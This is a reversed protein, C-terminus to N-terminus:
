KKNRSKIFSILFIIVGISIISICVYLLIKSISVGTDDVDIIDKDDFENYELMDEENLYDSNNMSKIIYADDEFGNGSEIVIDYKLYVVPYINSDIWSQKSSNFGLGYSNIYDDNDSFGIRDIVSDNIIAKGIMKQYRSTITYWYDDSLYYSKDKDIPNDRMLKIRYNFNGYEDSIYFVGIIRWLECSDLNDQNTCNFYVYNRVFDGVYRYDQFNKDSEFVYMDVKNGDNYTKIWNQNSFSMLFESAREVREGSYNDRIITISKESNDSLIIIIFLVPIIIRFMNKM